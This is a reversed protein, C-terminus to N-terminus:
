PWLNGHRCNVSQTRILPDQCHCDTYPANVESKRFLCASKLLASMNSSSNCAQIFMDVMFPYLSLSQQFCTLIMMSDFHGLVYIRM